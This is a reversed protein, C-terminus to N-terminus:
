PKEEDKDLAKIKKNIRNWRKEFDQRQIETLDVAALAKQVYELAKVYNKERHELHISLERVARHDSSDALMQWLESAERYLKKKKKLLALGKVAKALIDDRVACQTLNEYLQRAKELDGYKEYLKAIGLIEGEDGAYTFNEQYKMALLVLAALGVLDMANHEVVKELMFFSKSRLYNFYLSPIRNPDVDNERSIGLLTDGLHALKRSDFTHKWLTRAPFLFDLHPHKLLPFRKRQLIYRAELLPFDFSKGNYTVTGSFERSELFRDVEALFAGEKYLDNLIFIKVRFSDADADADADTDRDFFGFGVMFPITGTGGALGTTETDLFLLKLPSLSVDRCDEDGFLMALQLSSIHKWEELKFKGFLLELPYSFERILTTQGPDERVMERFNLGPTERDTKTGAQKAQQQTKERKLSLNVLKELKQRTSLGKQSDISEWKKKIKDKELDNLKDRLKGM